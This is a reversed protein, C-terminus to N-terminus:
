FRRLAAAPIHLRCELGESRWDFEARGGLQDRITGEIVGVGFGRERPKRVVPGGTESWRLVLEGDANRSWRISISGSRAAFAGYKVANTALEHIAMAIPQAAAPGLMVPPGEVIVNSDRDGYPALEQGILRELDAGEWRSDSLLSHASALAKIRGMFTATFDGITAARTFRVMAQVVALMNKARHDVERALLELRQEARKRETIDVMMNVAGVLNGDADRLPTPYALFPVRVGDPREAVAEAGKIQRNQKLAMAMPCEDHPLPTGDPWYLRWSGCWQDVGLKPRCGWLEAAAQNYLTIRGAADTTYVAAPLAEVVDRFRKEEGNGASEAISSSNAFGSGPELVEGSLSTM